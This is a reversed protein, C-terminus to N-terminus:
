YKSIENPINYKKITKGSYHDNQKVRAGSKSVNMKERM